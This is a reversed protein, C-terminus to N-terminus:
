IKRPLLARLRMKVQKMFSAMKKNQAAFLDQQFKAQAQRLAVEKQTISSRLSALGKKSMVSKNKQYKRLSAQLSKGKAIIGNKRSAFQSKLKKNISKVQPSDRFIQQMNVVGVGAALVNISFLISVVVTLAVMLRKM